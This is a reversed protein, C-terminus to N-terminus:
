CKRTCSNHELLNRERPLFIFFFNSFVTTKWVFLLFYLKLCKKSILDAFILKKSAHELQEFRISIELHRWDLDQLDRTDWLFFISVICNLDPFTESITSFGNSPAYDISRRDLSRFSYPEATVFVIIHYLKVSSKADEIEIRSALDVAYSLKFRSIVFQRHRSWVSSKAPDFHLVADLTGDRLAKIRSYGSLTM